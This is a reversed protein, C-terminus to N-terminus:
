SSWVLELSSASSTIIVSRSRLSRPLTQSNPLTCTGSSARSSRKAWTCCRTEVTSPRSRFSTVCKAASAEAKELRAGRQLTKSMRGFRPRRRVAALVKGDVVFLRLDHGKRKVYQQVVLNQGLGLVAELTAELSQLSECIMVGHKVLADINTSGRLFWLLEHIVGKLFLKKTTVAPFGERLDFRLQAGFRNLTGTGTRDTRTQGHDRIDRLLDLYQRM